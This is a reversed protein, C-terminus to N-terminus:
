RFQLLATNAVVGNMTVTAFAIAFPGAFLGSQRLEPGLRVNIQDMGATGQPGAYELPVSIGNVTCTVQASAANRFGTGYFSLYVAGDSVPIPVPACQTQGPRGPPPTSCRFVPVDVQSGDATIRVAVAAPTANPFSAMFLGPAVADVQMSGAAITAGDRVFTLTAEGLTTGGPVQFNIQTPSVYLIPALRITGASDRVQLSIGSLRTPWPAVANEPGAAPTPAFLTALSEPAVIASGSAASVARPLVSQSRPMLITITNSRGNTIVLDPRGDANLDAAAASESAWGVKYEVSTSLTGDGNGQFFSIHNVIADGFYTTVLDLRGDANFDAAASPYPDTLDTVQIGPRPYRIPAQFSGDGNGLFVSTTGALDLAGDGNFDGPLIGWETTPSQLPARLTGDGNGLFVTLKWNEFIGAILVVDSKRDGNFDGVHPQNAAALDFKASTQFFGHGNGLWIEVSGSPPDTIVLDPISDGNFDGAAAFSVRGVDRPPLFTGNGRGLLLRGGIFVDMRGDNNFDAIVPRNAPVGSTHLPPSFSGGGINLLISLGDMSPVALDLQSDGNFDGIAASFPRDAVPIDKRFFAPQALCVTELFICAVFQKM